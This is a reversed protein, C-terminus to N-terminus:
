SCFSSYLDVLDPNMKMILVNKKKRNWRKIQKERVIATLPDDFQECYLLNHVHYKRTFGPIMEQKHEWIRKCLNNTIGIYLVTNLYNGLIYVCYQKSM